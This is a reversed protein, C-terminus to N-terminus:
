YVSGFIGMVFSSIKLEEPNHVVEQSLGDTLMRALVGFEWV